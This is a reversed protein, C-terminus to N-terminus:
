ATKNKSMIEAILSNRDIVTATSEITNTDATHSNQKMMELRQKKLQLEITKLKKEIKNKRATLAHGLMNSAAGFIEAAHRTEVNLGLEMLNKYGETAMEALEDMERESAELGIVQPLAADIKDMVVVSKQLETLMEANTIQEEADAASEAPEAPALNFLNELKTNV